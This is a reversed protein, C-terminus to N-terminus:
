FNDKGKSRSKIREGTTNRPYIISSVAKIGRNGESRKQSAGFDLRRIQLNRSM